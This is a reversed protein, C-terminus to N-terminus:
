GLRLLNPRGRRYGQERAWLDLTVSALDDAIPCASGDRTLDITKVYVRCSECADLRAPDTAESRFVALRELNTEGCAFCGLRLAPSERLCTGCVHSRRAGHGAERLLSAVPTGGCFPCPDPPFAHLLAEVIFASPADTAASSYGAVLQRWPTSRSDQVVASIPGPANRELWQLYHPLASEADPHDITFSHQLAALAAFFNLAEHAEPRTAALSRAREIRAEWRTDTASSAM